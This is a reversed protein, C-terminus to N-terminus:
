SSFESRYTLRLCIGEQYLVEEEKEYSNRENDIKERPLEVVNEHILILGKLIFPLM